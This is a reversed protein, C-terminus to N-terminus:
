IAIDQITDCEQQPRRARTLHQQANILRRSGTRNGEVFCENGLRRLTENAARDEATWPIQAAPRPRTEFRVAEIDSEPASRAYAAYQEARAGPLTLKYQIYLAFSIWRRQEDESQQWQLWYRLILKWKLPRGKM